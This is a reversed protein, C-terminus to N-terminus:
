GTLGVMVYGEPRVVWSDPVLTLTSTTDDFRGTVTYYGDANEPGTESQCFFFTGNLRGSGANGILIALGTPNGQCTYQGRWVGNLIHQDIIEAEFEAAIEWLDFNTAGVPEAQSPKTKTFWFADGLEDLARKTTKLDVTFKREQGALEFNVEIGTEAM